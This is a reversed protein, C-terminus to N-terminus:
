PKMLCISFVLQGLGMQLKGGSLESATGGVISAAMGGAIANHKSLASIRGSVSKTFASSIFGSKFSGGNARSAVGGVVGHAAVRRATVTGVDGFSSSPM